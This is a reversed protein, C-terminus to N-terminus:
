SLMISLRALSQSTVLFMVLNESSSIAGPWCYWQHHRVCCAERVVPVKYGGTIYLVAVLSLKLIEEALIDYFMKVMGEGYYPTNQSYYSWNDDQTMLPPRGQLVAGDSSTYQIVRIHSYDTETVSRKLCHLESVFDPRIKWLKFVMTPQDKKIASYYYM